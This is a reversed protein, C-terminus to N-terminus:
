AAAAREWVLRYRPDYEDACEGCSFDQRVHREAIGGCAPCRGIWTLPPDIVGEGCCREPKAGVSRAMEKWAEDHHSREGPSLIGTAHMKAHAIEHLITERVEPEDNLPVYHRSLTIKPPEYAHRCSGFSTKCNDFEFTWEALGHEDMLRRAIKEAHELRV